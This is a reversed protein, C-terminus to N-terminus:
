CSTNGVHEFLLKKLNLTGPQIEIFIFQFNRDKPQFSFPFSQIETIKVFEAINIFSFNLVVEVQVTSLSPHVFDYGHNVLQHVGADNSSVHAKGLM